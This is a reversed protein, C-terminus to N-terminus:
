QSIPRTEKKIQDLISSRYNATAIGGIVFFVAVIGFFWSGRTLMFEAVPSLPSSSAGFNLLINAILGICFGTTSLCFTTVAGLVSISKLDTESLAWMVPCREAYVPRITAGANVVSGPQAPAV